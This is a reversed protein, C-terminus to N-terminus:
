GGLHGVCVNGLDANGFGIRVVVPAATPTRLSGTAANAGPIVGEADTGYKGFDHALMTQLEAKFEAHKAVVVVLAVIGRAQQM